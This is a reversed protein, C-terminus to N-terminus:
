FMVFLCLLYMVEVVMVRNGVIHISLHKFGWATTKSAKDSKANRFASQIFNSKFHSFNNSNWSLTKPASSCFIIM